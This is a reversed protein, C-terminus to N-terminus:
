KKIRGTRKAAISGVKQGHPASRPVCSPKGIHPHGGGGHPHSVPNMCIGKVVPFRKPKSQLCHYKKGAKVFPKEHRGGGGCRGITAKCEYPLVKFAGSPLEVTANQESKSILIASAGGSRVLKGGDGPTIEINFIKTSEPIDQLKMVNGPKIEGKGLYIKQNIMMGECAIMPIIHNNPLKVKCLPATHSPSHLIDVVVGELNYINPYKCKAIYRHSPAQYIPSRGKRQALIRKGM